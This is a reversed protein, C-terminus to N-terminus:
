CTPCPRLPSARTCCTTASARRRVRGARGPPRRCRPPHSAAPPAGPGGPARRPGPRPPVPLGVDHARRHPGRPCPRPARVGRRRAPGVAGRVPRHRLDDRGGGGAAAGGPDPSRHRRGDHRRADPGVGAGLGGPPGARGRRVAGGGSIAAIQEVLEQDPEAVYRGILGAMTARTSPLWSPWSRARARWSARACRWSRRVSPTSATRCWWPWVSTRRPGPSTTCSACAPRTPMTSTTSPSCCGRGRRRWGSSSPPPWSSGSTAGIGAGPWRGVRCRGTSRSGTPTTSATSSPSTAAASTPWRRSCPRM